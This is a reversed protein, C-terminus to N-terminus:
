EVGKWTGAQVAVAYALFHNAEITAVITNAAADDGVIAGEIVRGGEVYLTRDGFSSREARVTEM